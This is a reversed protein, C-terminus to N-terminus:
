FLIYNQFIYAYKPGTMFYPLNKCLIYSKVINQFIFDDDYNTIKIKELIEM